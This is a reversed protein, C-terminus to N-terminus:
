CTVLSFLVWHSHSHANMRIVWSLSLQCTHTYVCVNWHFSQLFGGGGGGEEKSYKSPPCSLQWGFYHSTVRLSEISNSGIIYPRRMTFMDQTPPENLQDLGQPYMCIYLCVYIHQHNILNPAIKMFLLM